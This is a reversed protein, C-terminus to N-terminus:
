GFGPFGLRGISHGRKKKTQIGKELTKLGGKEDRKRGGRKSSVLMKRLRTGGNASGGRRPEGVYHSREHNAHEKAV